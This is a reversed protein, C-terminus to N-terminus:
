RFLGGVVGLLVLVLLWFVIIGAVGCVAIKALDFIFGVFGDSGFKIRLEIV